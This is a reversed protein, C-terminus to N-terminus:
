DRTLSSLDLLSLLVALYFSLIVVLLNIFAAMVFIAIAYMYLYVRAIDRCYNKKKKGLMKSSM